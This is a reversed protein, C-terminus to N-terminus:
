RSFRFLYLSMKFGKDKKATELAETNPGTDVATNAALQRAGSHDFVTREVSAAATILLLVAAFMALKNSIRARHRKTLRFMAKEM